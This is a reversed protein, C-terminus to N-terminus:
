RKDTLVIRIESGASQISVNRSINLCISGIAENMEEDFKNSFQISLREAIEAGKNEIASAVTKMLANEFSPSTPNDIM